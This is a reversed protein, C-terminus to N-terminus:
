WRQSCCFTRPWRRGRMRATVSDNLRTPKAGPSAAERASPESGTLQAAGSDAGAVVLVAATGVFIAPAIRRMAGSM